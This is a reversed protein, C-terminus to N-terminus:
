IANMEVIKEDEDEGRHPRTDRPRVLRLAETTADWTARESVTAPECILGGVEAGKAVTTRGRLRLVTVRVVKPAWLRRM